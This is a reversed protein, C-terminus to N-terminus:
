QHAERWHNYVKPKNVLRQVHKYLELRDLKIWHEKIDSWWEADTRYRFYVTYKDFTIKGNIVMGAGPYLADEIEHMRICSMVAYKAEHTKPFILKQAHRLIWSEPAVGTTPDVPVRERACISKGKETVFVGGLVSFNKM